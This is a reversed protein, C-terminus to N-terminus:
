RRPRHGLMTSISQAAKRVEESFQKLEKRKLRSDPGSIGIAGVVEGAQDLIACACAAIGDRWEGQLVTAYGQQRVQQIDAMLEELTVRTTATYRKFLPRFRELAEDPEHALMAKGTAMAFAPARMGVSTHARIQHKSEIKDVYVVDTDDLVSLHVTEGTAQALVEMAPHAIAVFDLRKVVYSGLEWIKLTLEYTSSPPPAQRVFGQIQLTALLRHVNSKTLGLEGALDTIGRPKSSRALVELLRLGKTFAKDM